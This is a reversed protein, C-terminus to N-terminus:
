LMIFRLLPTSPSLETTLLVPQGEKLALIWETYGCPLVCGDLVGPRPSGFVCTTCLCISAFYGYM